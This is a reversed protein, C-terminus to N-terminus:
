IQSYIRYLLKKKIYIYIYIYIYIWFNSDIIIQNEGTFNKSFADDYIKLAQKEKITAKQEIKKFEPTDNYLRESKDNCNNLSFISLISM